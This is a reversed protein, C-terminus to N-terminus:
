CLLNHVHKGEVCVNYIVHQSKIVLLLNKCILLHLYLCLCAYTHIYPHIYTHMYACIFADVHIYALTHAHMYTYTLGSDIQGM